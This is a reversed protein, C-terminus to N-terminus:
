PTDGELRAATPSPVKAPALENPEDSPPRTGLAAITRAVATPAARLLDVVSAFQLSREAHRPHVLARAGMGHRAEADLLRPYHAMRDARVFFLSNQAYWYAVAPDNWFRGRLADVVRYGRAAFLDIWYAPWQENVHHMGGQGPIAASFLVVPALDTLFGVFAPAASKPLHEGVELSMALDFTRDPEPPRSLDTPRFREAPIELLDRKVWPGDFGATDAVGLANAAALWSGTGCGVDALSACPVVDFVWPLIAEASRRTGRRRTRYFLNSYLGM